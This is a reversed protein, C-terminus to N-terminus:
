QKNANILRFVFPKVSYKRFTNRAEEGMKEIDGGNHEILKSPEFINKNVVVDSIEELIEERGKFSAQKRRFVVESTAEKKLQPM